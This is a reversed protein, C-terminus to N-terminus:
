INARNEKCYSEADHHYQIDRQTLTLICSNNFFLILFCDQLHHFPLSIRFSMM